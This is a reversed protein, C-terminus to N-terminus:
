TRSRWGRGRVRLRATSPPRAATSVRGTRRTGYRLPSTRRDQRTPGPTSGSSRSRTGAARSSRRSVRRGTASVRADVRDMADTVPDTGTRALARLMRTESRRHTGILNAAIGYLWPRADPRALDYRGRRRFAALFTEAVVDDAAQDGLRRAVYRHISPAHRDYLGAFDEPHRRSRAILRADDEPPEATGDPPSPAHPIVTM